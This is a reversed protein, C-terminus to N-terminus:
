SLDEFDATIVQVDNDIKKALSDRVKSEGKMINLYNEVVNRKLDSEM